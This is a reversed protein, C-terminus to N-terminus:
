VTPDAPPSEPPPLAIPPGASSATTSADVPRAPGPAANDKRNLWGGSAAEVWNWRKEKGKAAPGTSAAPSPPRLNRPPAISQDVVVDRPSDSSAPSFRAIFEDRESTRGGGNEIPWTEAPKGRGDAPQAQRPWLAVPAGHGDHGDHSDHSDHGNSQASPQVAGRANSWPLPRPEPQNAPPVPPAPPAPQALRSSEAPPPGNILRMAAMGAFAAITHFVLIAGWLRLLDGAWFNSPDAAINWIVLLTTLGFFVAAHFQLFGLGLVWATARQSWSAFRPDNMLSHTSRPQTAM